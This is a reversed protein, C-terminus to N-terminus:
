GHPNGDAPKGYHSLLERMAEAVDVKDPRREERERRQEAEEQQAGIELVKGIVKGVVAATRQTKDPDSLGQDITVRLVKLFDPGLELSGAALLESLKSVPALIRRHKFRRAYQQLSRLKSDPLGLERHVAAPQWGDYLLENVREWGLDSLDAAWRPKDNTASM